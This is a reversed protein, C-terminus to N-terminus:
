CSRDDEFGPLVQSATFRNDADQSGGHIHYLDLLSDLSPTTPAFVVPRGGSNMPPFLQVRLSQFIKDSMDPYVEPPAGFAICRLRSHRASLCEEERPHM